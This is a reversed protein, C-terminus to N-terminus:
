GEAKPASLRAGVISIWYLLILPGALLLQTVVDPPTLVAGVIFALLIAIRWHKTMGEATVVGLRSLLVTVVPMEFVAGFVLLLMLEFQIYNGATWQPPIDYKLTFRLLFRTALPVVLWYAFSAGILFLFFGVLASSRVHRREKPWLGPRVFHWIRHLIYPSPLLLGVVAAIKVILAFIETPSLSILKVDAGEVGECARELPWTLAQWLRTSFVLCLAFGLAFAIAFAVICRIIEGRLEELHDGFSQRESEAYPDDDTGSKAEQPPATDAVHEPLEDPRHSGQPSPAGSSAQGEGTVNDEPQEEPAM